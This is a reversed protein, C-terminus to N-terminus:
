DHKSGGGRGVLAERRAARGVGIGAELAAARAHPAVGGFLGVCRAGLAEQGRRIAGSSRLISPGCIIRATHAGVRDLTGCLGAMADTDCVIEQAVSTYSFQLAQALEMSPRGGYTARM